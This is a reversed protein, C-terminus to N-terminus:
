RATSTSSRRFRPKAWASPASRTPSSSSSTSLRRGAVDARVRGRGDLRRHRRRRDRNKSGQAAHQDELAARPQSSAQHRVFDIHRPMSAAAQQVHTRLPTWKAAVLRKRSAPPDATRAGGARCGSGLLLWAWDTEEFTEHDLLNIRGSAAICISSTRWARPRPCPARRRGSSARGRRGPATTRWPSIACRTPMNPWSATTSPPKSPATARRAPVARDADGLGLQAFHLDAGALPELEVAAAGSRWAIASGSSAAAAPELVDHARARSRLAPAIAQLAARAAEDDTFRSCYVHGVMTAQALPLRWSWGATAAMTQTVRRRIRARGARAGVVHSRLAAVGVLRRTRRDGLQSLLRADSGLLRPVSRREVTRATPSGCRRRNRRGRTATSTPSRRRRRARVGLRLAHARLYRSTPRSKSISDTPSARRSRRGKAWPGRSGASDRPARRGAFLGRADRAPGRASREAPVQLVAHRRDRHRDRRACAPLPQRRGALGPTRHRAQVHRRHQQMLHPEAIGLLAHMGRQSPLTWRGARRMAPLGTDVVLRRARSPSARAAPRRGRDLGGSGGGAVVVSRHRRERAAGARTAPTPRATSRAPFRRAHAHAGRGVPGARAGAAAARAVEAADLADARPDYGRPM